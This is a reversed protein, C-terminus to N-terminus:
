AEPQWEEVEKILREISKLHWHEIGKGKAIDRIEKESMKSLIADGLQEKKYHCPKFNEIETDIENSKQAKEASKFWEGTKLYSRFVGPEFKRIKGTKHYLMVAM